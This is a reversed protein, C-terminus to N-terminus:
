DLEFYEKVSEVDEFDNSDEVEQSLQADDMKEYGVCGNRIKEVYVDSM